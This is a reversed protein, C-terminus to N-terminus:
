CEGVGSTLIHSFKSLSDKCLRYLNLSTTLTARIRYLNDTHPSARLVCVWVSPHGHSSVPLPLGEALSSLAARLM